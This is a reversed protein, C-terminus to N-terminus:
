VGFLFDISRSWKVPGGLADSWEHHSTHRCVLCFILPDRGSSRVALPMVGNMIALELQHVGPILCSCFAESAHHIDGDVSLHSGGRWWDVWVLMVM